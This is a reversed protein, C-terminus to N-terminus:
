KGKRIRKLRLNLSKDLGKCRNRVTVETVDAADALERQTIHEGNIISASYLAAAAMGIPGKGAVAKMEKAKQLLQMAVNQTKM